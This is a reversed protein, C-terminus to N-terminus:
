VLDGLEPEAYNPGKLVKGDDRRIPKGDEDLKSMNSEHIRQVAEDLNFGLCDAAGYAVYVIDALEKLLAMKSLRVDIFDGAALGKVLEDFEVLAEDTEEKILRRRLKVLDAGPFTSHDREQGFVQHFEAVTEQVTTM